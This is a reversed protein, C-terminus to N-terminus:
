SGGGQLQAGFSLQTWVRLYEPEGGLCGRESMWISGACLTLGELAYGM